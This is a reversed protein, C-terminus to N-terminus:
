ARILEGASGRLEKRSSIGLKVYVHHLHWEVTRPSLFLRAGIEQNSLGGRALQAIQREQGTFEARTEVTQKRVREGTALLEKRAREAFAEMGITAFLDHATRLQDRADVRRGARRLWEGFLLHARALEPHMETRGLREIAERYLEDAAAGESLLARCRAEIGLAFDNGAPQTTEALRELADRALAPDGVRAAAEALEPLVWMSAFLESTDSAAQRAWSAAEQYRALGNHLVAAAWHAYTAVGHAGAAAAEEIASAVASSAEAEKGELALLRLKIWPSFGSGTAAAVSEAEAINAAAGAFDGSGASAMGLASLYLPLAALAGAERVLQVQRASIARAGANDWVANSASTAMWGWHLVDEVSIAGLEKAAAQL